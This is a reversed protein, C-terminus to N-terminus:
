HTETQADKRLFGWFEERLKVLDTEAKETQANCHPEVPLLSFLTPAGQLRAPLLLRHAAASVLVLVAALCAPPQAFAESALPCLRSRGRM